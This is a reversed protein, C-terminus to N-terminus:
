SGSRPIINTLINTVNEIAQQGSLARMPIMLTSTRHLVIGTTLVPRAYYVICRVMDYPITADHRSTNFDVRTVYDCFVTDIVFGTDVVGDDTVLNGIESGEVMGATKEARHARVLRGFSELRDAQPKVVLLAYERLDAYRLTDKANVTQNWGPDRYLDSGDMTEWQPNLSPNNNNLDIWASEMKAGYPQNTTGALLWNGNEDLQYRSPKAVGIASHNTDKHWESAPSNAGGFDLYPRSQSILTPTAPWSGVVLRTYVIGFSGAKWPSQVHCRPDLANWDILSPHAARRSPWNVWTPWNSGTGVAVPFYATSTRDQQWTTLASITASQSLEWFTVELERQLRRDCQMIGLALDDQAHALSDLDRVANSQQVGLALVVSLIAAAIMVEMLSFGHRIM